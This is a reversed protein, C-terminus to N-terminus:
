LQICSEPPDNINMCINKERGSKSASSTRQGILQLSHAQSWELCIWINPKMKLVTWTIEWFLWASSNKSFKLQHLYHM